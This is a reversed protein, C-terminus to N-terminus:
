GVGNIRHTHRTLRAAPPMKSWRGALKVDRGLSCISIYSLRTFFFCFFLALKQGRNHLEAPSVARQVFLQHVIAEENASVEGYLGFLTALTTGSITGDVTLIIHGVM